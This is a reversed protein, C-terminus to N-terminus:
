EPTPLGALTEVASTTNSLPTMWTISDYKRAEIIISQSRSSIYKTPNKVNGLIGGSGSQSSAERSEDSCKGRRLKDLRKVGSGGYGNECGGVLSECSEADIERSEWGRIETLDEFVVNNSAGDAVGTDELIFLVNLSQSSLIHFNHLSVALDNHVIGLYDLGVDNQVVPDDM